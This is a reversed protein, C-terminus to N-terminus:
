KLLGFRGHVVMRICVGQARKPDNVKFKVSYRNKIGYNRVAQKFEVISKFEMGVELRPDKMNSECFEPFKYNDEDDSSYDINLEESSLYCSSELHHNEVDLRQRNLEWEVDEVVNDKYVLDDVEDDIDNESDQFSSDINEDEIEAGSQPEDTELKLLNCVETM